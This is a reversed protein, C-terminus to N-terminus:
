NCYYGSEYSGTAYSLLGHYNVNSCKKEMINTLGRQLGDLCGDLCGECSSKEVKLKAVTKCLIRTDFRAPASGVPFLRSSERFFFRLTHFSKIIRVYYNKKKTDKKFFFSRQVSPVLVLVRANRIKM